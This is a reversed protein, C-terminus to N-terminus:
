SFSWIWNETTLQFQSTKIQKFIDEKHLKKLKTNEVFTAKNWNVFGSNRHQMGATEQFLQDITFILYFHNKKWKVSPQSVVNPLSKKQVHTMHAPDPAM